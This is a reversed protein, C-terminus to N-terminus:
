LNGINKKILLEVEYDVFVVLEFDNIVIARIQAFYDKKTLKKMKEM